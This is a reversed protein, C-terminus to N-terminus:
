LSGLRKAYKDSEINSSITKKNKMITSELGTTMWPEVFRRKGAIKVAVLPAVTEMVSNLHDCFINFNTNCDTNSLLVNWDTNFMKNKIRTIKDKNLKQSKFEIPTKDM